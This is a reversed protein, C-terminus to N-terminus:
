SRSRIWVIQYLYKLVSFDLMMDVRVNEDFKAFPSPMLVESMILLVPMVRMFAFELATGNWNM